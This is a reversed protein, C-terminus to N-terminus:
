RYDDVCILDKFGIRSCKIMPNIFIRSEVISVELSISATLHSPPSSWNLFCSSSDEFQSVIVNSSLSQKKLHPEKEIHHSLTSSMRNPLIPLRQPLIPLESASNTFVIKSGIADSKM